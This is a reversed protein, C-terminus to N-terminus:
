DRRKRKDLVRDLERIDCIVPCNELEEVGLSGFRNVIITDMGAKRSGVADDYYNDGVYVSEGPEVEADRLAKLFIEVQPKEWGVESSIILHEFFRDLHHMRLIERASQDWNSIVGM